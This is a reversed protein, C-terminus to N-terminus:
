TKDHTLAEAQKLIAPNIQISGQEKLKLLSEFSGLDSWEFEAKVVWAQNTKEMVGRDISIEPSNQFYHHIQEEPCVGNKFSLGQLLAFLQPLHAKVEGLITKVSWVFIGSNWLYNGDSMYHRAKQIDPKEVFNEVLSLPSQKSPARTKIYGYETSPWEPPIGFTVLAPHERAYDAAAKMNKSFEPGSGVYHDAPFVAMVANPNKHALLWAALAMCPATNKKVPEGIIQERELKPLQSRVLSIYKESTAVIINKAQAFPGLREFTHQLLSRNGYLTLFQKPCEETSIPYFRTGSGGAMILVDIM